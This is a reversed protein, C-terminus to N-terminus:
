ALDGRRDLELIVLHKAERLEKVHHSIRTSQKALADLSDLKTDIKEILSLLDVDGEQKIEYGLVYLKREIPALLQKMEEKELKKIYFHKGPDNFKDHADLYKESSLSRCTANGSDNRVWVSSGAVGALIESTLGEPYIGKKIEIAM